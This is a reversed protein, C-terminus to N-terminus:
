CSLTHYQVGYRVGTLKDTTDWRVYSHWLKLWSFSVLYRYAHARTHAAASAARKDLQQTYRRRATAEAQHVM